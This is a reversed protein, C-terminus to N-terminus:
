SNRLEFVGETKTAFAGIYIKYEVNAWNASPSNIYKTVPAQLVTASGIDGNNNVTNYWKKKTTQSALHAFWIYEANANYTISFTSNADAIVKTANGAQIAAAVSDVSPQTASKGYFYPYLVNITKTATLTGAKINNNDPNGLNDNYIQGDGYNASVQFTTNSV